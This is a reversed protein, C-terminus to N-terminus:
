IHSDEMAKKILTARMRDREMGDANPENAQTSLTAPLTHILLAHLTEHTLMPLEGLAVGLKLDTFLTFFEESSILTAHKAIGLARHIRDTRHLAAEGTLKERLTREKEIISQVAEELKHLIEEESLGLTVQNSIQYLCGHARSGEGYLGRMTLGIKALEHSLTGIMNRETLAPLHLMVSARLGTGLNTPCHTLYGLNEDFAIPLAADLLEDCECAFRYADRLALGPLICQLRVHDEECTMVSLSKNENCFLARTGSAKAFDRSIQHQEVLAQMALPTLAKMDTKTYSDGLATEVKAVIESAAEDSLRPAFAYGELNRAFRIRSSFVVDNENGKVQYWAM